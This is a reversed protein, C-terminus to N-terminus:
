QRTPNLTVGPVLPAGSVPDIEVGTKLRWDPATSSELLCEASGKMGACSASTSTEPVAAPGQGPRVVQSQLPGPARAAPRDPGSPPQTPVVRVQEVGLVSSPRQSAPVPDVQALPASTFPLPLPGSSGGPPVVRVESRPWIAILAALVADRETM